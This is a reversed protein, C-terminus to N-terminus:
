FLLQFQMRLAVEGDDDDALYAIGTDPVGLTNLSDIFYVVDFTWKAAHGHMYYNVGATVTNFWDDNSTLTRASDDPVLADYRLFIEWKTDPIMIGGQVVFGYDDASAGVGDDTYSGTGAAFVNWGDGELSVDGTWAFYDYTRGFAATSSDGGEYHAAFGVMAGFDSGSPSTFDEFQKWAGSFLYEFRGTFAYDSEGGSFLFNAGVTKNATYDTNQARFGDSFAAKVNWNETEYGVEIGQSRGQNFVQNYLSKDVALQHVEAVLEERMFPLRFQGWRVRFGNNFNYGVFADELNFDGGDFDFNGSVKYFLSPDFVYGDFNLATRRTQFGSVFDDEIIGDRDGDGDDRFNMLYRFQVEGGVNLRFGDGALFFRKGDHGAGSSQLLSSRTAADAHMEAVLARVEDSSGTWAQGADANVSGIAGLTTAMGAVLNVWRTQSM